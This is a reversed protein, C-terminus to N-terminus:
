KSYLKNLEDHKNRNENSRLKRLEAMMLSIEHRIFVDSKGQAKLEEVRKNIQSFELDIYVFVRHSPERITPVEKHKM